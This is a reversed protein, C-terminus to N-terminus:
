QDGGAVAIAVGEEPYLAKVVIARVIQKRPHSLETQHRRFYRTREVQEHINGPGGIARKAEGRWRPRHRSAIDPQPGLHIQHDCEGGTRLVDQRDVALGSFRDLCMKCDRSDSPLGNPALLLTLRFPTAFM